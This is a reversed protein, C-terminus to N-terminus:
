ACDPCEDRQNILEQKSALVLAAETSRGYNTHYQYLKESLEIAYGLNGKKWARDLKKSIWGDYKKHYITLVVTVTDGEIVQVLKQNAQYHDKSARFFYSQSDKKLVPVCTGEDNTKCDPVKSFTPPDKDDTTILSGSSRTKRGKKDVEEVVVVIAGSPPPPVERDTEIPSAVLMSFYLLLM